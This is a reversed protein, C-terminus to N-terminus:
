DRELVPRGPAGLVDSPPPDPPPPPPDPPPPDPPPPPPPDPPAAGKLLSNSSASHLGNHGVAVVSVWFQGEDPLVISTQYVGGVQQPIGMSESGLAGGEAYRIHARFEAVEQPRSHTFHIEVPGAVALSPSLAVALVGAARAALRRIRRAGGRSGVSEDEDSISM